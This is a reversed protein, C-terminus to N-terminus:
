KKYVTCCRLNPALMKIDVYYKDTTKMSNFVAMHRKKYLLRYKLAMLRNYYCSNPQLPPNIYDVSIFVGVDSVIDMIEDLSLDLYFNTFLSMVVDNALYMSTEARIFDKASMNHLFRCQTQTDKTVNQFTDLMNKSLDIGIYVLEDVCDKLLEYGLGTGCGLDIADVRGDENLYKVVGSIYSGILKDEEQTKTNTYFKDYRKGCFFDYLMLNLGVSLVCWM